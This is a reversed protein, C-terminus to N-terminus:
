MRVDCPSGTNILKERWAITLGQISCWWVALNCILINLNIVCVSVYFQLLLPGLLWCFNVMLRDFNLGLKVRLRKKFVRSSFGGCHQGIHCVAEKVVMVWKRGIGAFEGVMGGGWWPQTPGGSVREWWILGIVPRCLATLRLETRRVWQAWLSMQTYAILILSYPLLPPCTYHHTFLSCCPARKIVHEGLLSDCYALRTQEYTHERILLSSVSAHFGSLHATVAFTCLCGLWRAILAGYLCMSVADPITFHCWWFSIQNETQLLAFFDFRYM